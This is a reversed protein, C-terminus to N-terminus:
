QRALEIQGLYGIIKDVENAADNANVGSNRQIEKITQERFVQYARSNKDYIGKGADRNWETLAVAKKLAEDPDQGFFDKNKGNNMLQLAKGIAKPDTIGANLFAQVQTNMAERAGYAGLYKQLVKMNEPDTKYKKDYLYQQRKGYDEGWYGLIADKKAEGAEKALKDGYYNAGYYGAVGAATAYQLAKGADGSAIGVAAGTLGLAGGAIGGLVAKRTWRGISKPTNKIGNVLKREYRYGLSGIAGGIGELGRSGIKPGLNEKWANSSEKPKSAIDLDADNHDVRMQAQRVMAERKANETAGNDVQETSQKPTGKDKTQIIEGSNRGGSTRPAGNGGTLVTDADVRDSSAKRIGRNAGSGEEGGHGGRGPKPRNLKNIMASFVAGGAFSGAASLTGANDFGFFKRLLKEAPILFGIAVIGYILNETVLTMASGVLITYILLHFPQIMVNFVYERFWM